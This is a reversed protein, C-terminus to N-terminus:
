LIAVRWSIQLAIENALQRTYDFYRGEAFNWAHPFLRSGNIVVFGEVYNIDLKGLGSTTLTLANDYCLKPEFCHLQDADNILQHVGPIKSSEEVTVQRLIRKQWSYFRALTKSSTSKAKTALHNRLKAETTIDLKEPSM